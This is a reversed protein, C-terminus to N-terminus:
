RDWSLAVLLHVADYGANGAVLGANSLHLYRIATRLARGDELPFELGAGANITFMFRSGHAPIPTGAAYQVGAGFEYYPSFSRGRRQRWVLSFDTGFSVGSGGPADPQDEVDLWSVVWDQHLVLRGKQAVCHGLMARWPHGEDGESTAVLPLSAASRRYGDTCPHGGVFPIPSSSADGAGPTEAAAVAACGGFAVAGLRLVGARCGTVLLHPRFRSPAPSDTM